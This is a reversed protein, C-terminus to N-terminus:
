RYRWSIFSNVPKPYKNNFPLLAFHDISQTCLTHCLSRGKLGLSSAFSFHTKTSNWMMYRENLARKTSSTWTINWVFCVHPPRNGSCSPSQWPHFVKGLNSATPCSSTAEIKCHMMISTCSHNHNQSGPAVQKILAVQECRNLSKRGPFAALTGQSTFRPNKYCMGRARPPCPFKAISFPRSFRFFFKVHFRFISGQFLLFMSGFWWNKPEM